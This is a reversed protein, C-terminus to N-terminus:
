AADQLRARRVVACQTALCTGDDNRVQALATTAAERKGSRSAGVVRRIPPPQDVMRDARRRAPDPDHRPSPRHHWALSRWNRCDACYPDASPPRSSTTSSRCNPPASQAEAFAAPITHSHGAGPLQGPRGGDDVRRVPTPRMSRSGCSRRTGIRRSRQQWTPEPNHTDLMQCPGGGCVKPRASLALDSPYPTPLGPWGPDTPPVPRTSPELM